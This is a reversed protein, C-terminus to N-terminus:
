DCSGSGISVDRQYAVHTRPTRVISEEELPQAALSSVRASVTPGFLTPLNSPAARACSM